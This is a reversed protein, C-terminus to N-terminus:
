SRFPLPSPQNTLPPEVTAFWGPHRKFASDKSHSDTMGTFFSITKAAHPIWESFLQGYIGSTYCKVVCDTCYRM